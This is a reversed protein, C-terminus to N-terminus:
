KYYSNASKISFGRGFLRRKLRVARGAYRILLILLLPFVAINLVQLSTAFVFISALILVISAILYYLIFKRHKKSFYFVSAILNLPNLWLLNLNSNVLPHVSVFTLYFVLVGAVGTIILLLFDIIKFCVHKKLEYYQSFALLVLLVSFLVFPQFLVFLEEKEEPVASVIRKQPQVLKRDFEGTKTLVVATEMREMLVEPLFLSQELSAPKDANMGFILDIGFKAWLDNSLYGDILQRFTNPESKQTYKVFGDLADVIKDKPRTACNDFVFNYRYVRNRPEYNEILMQLLKQKEHLQLDIKQEWVDSNRFQYEHLFDSTQNIGLQYDTEGKIFKYYFNDTNFSFIGYNFVIDIQNIPDHVRIGTHGFKAYLEKGPACTLLSIETSDSFTVQEARLSSFFFILLVIFLSKRM